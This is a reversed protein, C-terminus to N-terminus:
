LDLRYIISNYTYDIKKARAYTVKIDTM